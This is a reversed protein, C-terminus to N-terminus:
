DRPTNIHDVRNNFQSFLAVPNKALKLMIDGIMAARLLRDEILHAHEPIQDPKM